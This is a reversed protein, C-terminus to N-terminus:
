RGLPRYLVGGATMWCGSSEVCDIVGGETYASDVRVWDDEGEGTIVYLRDPGYRSVLNTIQMGSGDAVDVLGPFYRETERRWTEGADRSVM